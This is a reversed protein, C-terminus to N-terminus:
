PPAANYQDIEADIGDARLRDALDLVREQHEATDHSYSIFVKPPASAMLRDSAGTTQKGKPLGGDKRVPIPHKSTEKNGFLPSVIGGLVASAIVLIAVLLVTGGATTPAIWWVAMLGLLFGIGGGIGFKALLEGVLRQHM